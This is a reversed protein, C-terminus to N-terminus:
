ITFELPEGDKNGDRAGSMSVEEFFVNAISQEGKGLYYSDLFGMEYGSSKM